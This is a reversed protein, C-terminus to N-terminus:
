PNCARCPTSWNMYVSEVMNLNIEYGGIRMPSFLKKGFFILGLLVIGKCLEFNDVLLRLPGNIHLM